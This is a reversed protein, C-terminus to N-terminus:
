EVSHSAGNDKNGRRARGESKTYFWLFCGWFSNAIFFDDRKFSIRAIIMMMGISIKRKRWRCLRMVRLPYALSILASGM